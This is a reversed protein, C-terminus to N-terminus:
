KTIWNLRELNWHVTMSSESLLPKCLAILFSKPLETMSSAAML